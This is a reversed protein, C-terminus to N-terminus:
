FLTFGCLLPNSIIHQSMDAVRILLNPLHSTLILFDLHIVYCYVSCRAGMLTSCYRNSVCFYLMFWLFSLSHCCYGHWVHILISQCVYIGRQQEYCTAHWAHPYPLQFNPHCGALIDAANPSFCPVLMAESLSYLTVWAHCLKYWRVTDGVCNTVLRRFPLVNSFDDKCMLFRLRKWYEM